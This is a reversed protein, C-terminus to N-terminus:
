SSSSSSKGPYSGHISRNIAITARGNQGHKALIGEHSFALQKGWSDDLSGVSMEARFEADASQMYSVGTCRGLEAIRALYLLVDVPSVQKLLCASLGWRTLRLFFDAAQCTTDDPRSGRADEEGIKFTGTVKDLVFTHAPENRAVLSSGDCASLPVLQKARMKMLTGPKVLFRGPVRSGHQAEFERQYCLVRDEEPEDISDERRRKQGGEYRVDERPAYARALARLVLLNTPNDLDKALAECTTKDLDQLLVENTVGNKVLCNAVDLQAIIGAHNKLFNAAKYPLLALGEAAAEAAVDALNNDGAAAGGNLALQHPQIIEQDNNQQAMPALLFLKGFSVLLLTVHSGRAFEFRTLLSTSVTGLAKGLLTQGIAHLDPRCAFA